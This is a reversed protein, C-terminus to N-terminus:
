SSGCRSGADAARSWQLEGESTAGKLGSKVLRRAEARDGEPVCAELGEGQMEDPRWGLVGEMRENAFRVRNDPM